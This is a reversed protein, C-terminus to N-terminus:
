AAILTLKDQLIEICAASAAHEFQGVARKRTGRDTDGLCNIDRRLTGQFPLLKDHMRTMSTMMKGTCATRDDQVIVWLQDREVTSLNLRATLEDVAPGELKPPQQNDAALAPPTSERPLTRSHTLVGPLGALSSIGGRKGTNTNLSQWIQDVSQGGPPMDALQDRLM